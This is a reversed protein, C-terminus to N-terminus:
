GSLSPSSGIASVIDQLSIAAAPRALSFGGDPGRQSHVLGSRRLETM